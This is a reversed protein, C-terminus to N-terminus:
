RESGAQLGPPAPLVASLCAATSSAAEAGGTVEADVSASPGGSCRSLSASEIARALSRARSSSGHVVLTSPGRLAAAVDLLAAAL